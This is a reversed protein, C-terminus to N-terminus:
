HACVTTLSPVSLSPLGSPFNQLEWVISSSGLSAVVAQAKLKGSHRPTFQAFCCCWQQPQLQLAQSQLNWGEPAQDETGPITPAQLQPPQPHQPARSPHTPTDPQEPPQMSATHHYSGERDVYVIQLFVVAHLCNTSNYNGCCCDRM